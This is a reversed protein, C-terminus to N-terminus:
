FDKYLKGDVNKFLIRIRSSIKTSWLKVLFIFLNDSVSLDSDKEISFIRTLTSYFFSLSSIYHFLSLTYSEFFFSQKM